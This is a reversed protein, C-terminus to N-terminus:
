WTTQRTHNFLVQFLFYLFNLGLTSIKMLRSNGCSQTVFQGLGLTGGRVGSVRLSKVSMLWSENYASEHWNSLWPVSYETTNLFIKLNTKAISKSITTHHGNLMEGTFYRVFACRSKPAGTLRKTRERWRNWSKNPFHGWLCYIGVFM